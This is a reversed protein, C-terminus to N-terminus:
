KLLEFLSSDENLINYLNWLDKLTQIEKNTVEHDRYGQGEFRMTANNSSILSDLLSSLDKLQGGYGALIDSHVVLYWEAIDNGIQSGRDFYDVDWEYRSGDIVFIVKEFFVWDRQQFGTCLIFTPVNRFTMRPEININRSINVYRTSYGKPAIKYENEVKDYEITIRKKIDLLLEKNHESQLQRVAKIENQINNNFSYKTNNNLIELAEKYHGSDSKDKSQAIIEKSAGEKYGGILGEVDEGSEIFRRNNELWKIAEIYDDKEALEEAKKIVEDSLKVGANKKYEIASTYNADDEIIKSSEEIAEQYKGEEFYKVLNKYAERSNNLDKVYKTVSSVENNIIEFEQIEKLSDNAEEYSIKNSIYDEEITKVEDILYLKIKEIEKEDEVGNLIQIAEENSNNKVAGLFKNYPDNNSNIYIFAFIGILAGITMFIFAFKKLSIKKSIIPQSHKDTLQSKDVNINKDSDVRVEELKEIKNGCLNCFMSEEPVKNGCELCNVKGSRM